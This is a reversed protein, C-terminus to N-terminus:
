LAEKRKDTGHYLFVFGFNWREILVCYANEYVILSLFKGWV